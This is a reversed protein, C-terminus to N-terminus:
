LCQIPYESSPTDVPARKTAVVASAVLGAIGSDRREVQPRSNPAMLPLPNESKLKLIGVNDGM